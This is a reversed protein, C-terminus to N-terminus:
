RSLNEYACFIDHQHKSIPVIEQKSISMIKNSPFLKYKKENM